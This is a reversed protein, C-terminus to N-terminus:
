KGPSTSLLGSSNRYYTNGGQSVTAPLGGSGGGGGSINVQTSQPSTSLLGSSNRYYSTGGQIVMSPLTVVPGSGTFPSNSGNPWRLPQLGNGPQLLPSVYDNFAGIGVATIVSTWALTGWPGRPPRPTINPDTNYGQGSVEQYAQYSGPTGSTYNHYLDYAATGIGLAVVGAGAVPGWFESTGILGIGGLTELMPSMEDATGAYQRGTPDSRVIPNGESYSYSNLSQPDTLNQSSSLFIPDQSLFQGRTSDYYRANLYSLNSADTFQGIYQRAAGTAGTNTTALVSGYPAYDFSQALHGNSDSTVNTSVLNDTHNYRTIPTGTATGNVMKQDVTAFLTSGSYVYDTSTATTTSGSLTSTISYFTSPYITTSSASTQSIRSGFPDYSYTTTAHGNGSSMMRNQFDYTYFTTTGVSTLNGNKDYAYTSTAITGPYSTVPTLSFYNAAWHTSTAMTWGLALPGAPSVPGNSDAYYLNGSQQQRITTNSGATATGAASPTGILVGWANNNATTTTAQFLTVAGSDNLPNGSGSADPFSSQKVGTYTAASAYLVCSASASVVINHTSTAPSFGYYTKLAQGVPSTNGVYYGTATLSTGNNTVGTVKDSSCTSTATSENIGVVILGNTNSTTTYSFTLSSAPIGNGAIASNDYAITPTSGNTTLITQTVADPNAYSSGTNGQYSYAGDPGTLINGLADYTFTQNYSNLNSISTSASLLRNLTDYSYAVQQGAGSNSNDARTLINGDADYTYNLDQLSM